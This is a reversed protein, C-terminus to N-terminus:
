RVANRPARQCRLTALGLALGYVLWTGYVLGVLVVGAPDDFRVPGDIWGLAQSVTGFVAMAGMTALVATATWGGTLVLLRPLRRGWPRALALSGAAGVVMIALEGAPFGEVYPEPRAVSGGLWWYLKVLPYPFSLVCALYAPWPRAPVPTRPLLLAATAGAAALSLARAAMGPWDVVAFTGAPIGTVAFFARFGDLVVGGSCWLLLVVATWGLPAVLRPLRRADSVVAAVTLLAAVGTVWGPAYGRTYDVDAPLGPLLTAVAGAGLAALATTVALLPVPRRNTTTTM